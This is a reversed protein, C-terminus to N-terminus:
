INSLDEAFCSPIWMGCVKGGVSMACKYYLCDGSSLCLDHMRATPGLGILQCIRIGAIGPPPYALQQIRSWVWQCLKHCTKKFDCFYYFAFQSEERRCYCVAFQCHMVDRLRDSASGDEMSMNVFHQQQKKSLGHHHTNPSNRQFRVTRSTLCGRVNKRTKGIVCEGSSAGTFPKWEGSPQSTGITWPNCSSIISQSGIQCFSGYGLDCM